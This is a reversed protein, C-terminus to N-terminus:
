KGLISNLLSGAAAKVLAAKLEGALTGRYGYAAIKGCDIEFPTFKPRSDSVYTTSKKM